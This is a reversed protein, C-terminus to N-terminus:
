DAFPDNEEVLGKLHYLARKIKEFQESDARLYPIEIVEVPWTKPGWEYNVGAEEEGETVSKLIRGESVETGTKATLNVRIYGLSSDEDMVQDGHDISVQMIHEPNFTQTHRYKRVDYNKENHFTELFNESYIELKGDSFAIKADQIKVVSKIDGLPGADPWIEISHHGITEKVRQDLYAVTEELTQAEM